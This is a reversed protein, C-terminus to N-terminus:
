SLAAIYLLQKEVRKKRLQGSSCAMVSFYDMRQEFWSANSSLWLFEIVNALLLAEIITVAGSQTQQAQDLGFGTLWTTVIQSQTAPDLMRYILSSYVITLWAFFGWTLYMLLFGATKCRGTWSDFSVADGLQLRRRASGCASIFGVTVKQYITTSWSKGLAATLRARGPEMAALRWGGHGLMFVRFLFRWRALRMRGYVQSEDTALSLSLLVSLINAFPLAV